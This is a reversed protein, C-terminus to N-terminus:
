DSGLLWQKIEKLMDLEERNVSYTHANNNRLKNLEDLWRLRKDKSMTEEGKRVFQISGFKKWNQRREDIRKQMLTNPILVNVIYKM